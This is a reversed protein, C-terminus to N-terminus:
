LFDVVIEVRRNRARDAATREPYVLPEADGRGEVHIRGAVGGSALLAAVTQARAESLAANSSWGSRRIPTTDSHGLVTVRAGPEAALAAAAAHLATVIGSEGKLDKSGSRFADHVRVVVRGGQEQVEAAGQGRLAQAFRAALSDATPRAEWPGPSPAASSAHLSQRWRDEAESARREAEERAMREREIQDQAATVQGRLDDIQRAQAPDSVVRPAPTPAWATPPPAHAVAPPAAAPRSRCAALALAPALALLCLALGNSPRPM